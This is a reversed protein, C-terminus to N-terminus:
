NGSAAHFRARDFNPNDLALVEAVNTVTSIFQAVAATPAGAGPKSLRLAAAIKIYDRRTM